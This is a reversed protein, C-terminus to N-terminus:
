KVTLILYETGLIMEWEHNKGQAFVDEQDNGCAACCPSDSNNITDCCCRWLTPIATYEKKEEKSRWEGCVDMEGDKKAVEPYRHCLPGIGTYRSCIYFACDRCFKGQLSNVIGTM